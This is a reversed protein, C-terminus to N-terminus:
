YTKFLALILSYISYSIGGGWLVYNFFFQKYKIYNIINILIIIFQTDM